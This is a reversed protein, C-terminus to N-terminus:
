KNKFGKLVKLTSVYINKKYKLFINVARQFDKSSDISLNFKANKEYLNNRLKYIKFDSINKYFYEFIHEKESKTLENNNFVDYFIESSAIECSLGKPVKKHLQNTVIDFKKSKFIKIAKKIERFDVFPRDACVRIFGNIKNKKLCMITRLFVNNLSGRFFKINKKKCFKVLLDDSKNTSTNVIIPINLKKKLRLYIIELLCKNFIKKLVKGKLRKSSLRAYIIIVLKNV